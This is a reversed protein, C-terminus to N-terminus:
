LDFRSKMVNSRQPALASVDCRRSENQTGIWPRAVIRSRRLAEGAAADEDSLAVKYTM